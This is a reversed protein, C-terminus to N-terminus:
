VESPWARAVIAPLIQAAQGLVHTITEGSRQGTMDPNIVFVPCGHDAAVWPISAAPEVQNSTGISLMLDCRGAEVFAREISEEDLFEEFFVVDPRLLGGCARCKVAEATFQDPWPHPTACEFCKAHDLSGHLEIIAGSGARHHLRDINQTLLLMRPVHREIRALARHAENPEAALMARRRADYWPWAEVSHKRFGAPNAYREMHASSWLATDGTRYTGLGSDASIGAGTLAVVFQAQRLKTAALEIKQDLSM